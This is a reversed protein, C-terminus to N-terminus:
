HFSDMLEEPNGWLITIRIIYSVERKRDGVHQLRCVTM